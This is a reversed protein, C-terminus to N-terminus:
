ERNIPIFRDTKDQDPDDRFAVTDKWMFQEYMEVSFLSLLYGLHIRCIFTTKMPKKELKFSTKFVM